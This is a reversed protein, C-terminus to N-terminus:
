EDIENMGMVHKKTMELFSLFGDSRRKESRVLDTTWNEIAGFTIKTPGADAKVLLHVAM